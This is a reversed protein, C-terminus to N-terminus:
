RCRRSKAHHAAPKLGEANKPCFRAEAHTGWGAQKLGRIGGLALEAADTKRSLRMGGLALEAADTKRSLRMGGLALEAADTKRV